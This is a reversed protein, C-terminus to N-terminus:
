SKGQLVTRTRHCPLCDWWSKVKGNETTEQRTLNMAGHCRDCLVALEFAVDKAGHEIEMHAAAVAMTVDLPFLHACHQCKLGFGDDDEPAATRPQLDSM